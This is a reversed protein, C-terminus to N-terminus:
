EKLTRRKRKRIPNTNNEGIINELFLNNQKVIETSEDFEEESSKIITQGEGLARRVAEPNIFSGILYAQNKTIEVDDKQDELWNNYMWLKLVPDMEEFFPDDPM